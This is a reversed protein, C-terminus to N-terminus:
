LARHGHTTLVLASLAQKLDDYILFPRLEPPYPLKEQAAGRGTRVLATKGVGAAQGALVDSLADGILLSANLDLSLKGAAELILGPKPKRCACAAEPSHPCLFTGDIRGGAKRVTEVIYGNIEWAKEISILGRGVASQNTILVIKYPTASARVLADVANPIFRVDEVARVYSAVNEIIVGDRDLFIAADMLDM